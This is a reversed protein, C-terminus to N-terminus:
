CVCWVYAPLPCNRVKNFLLHDDACADAFRILSPCHCAWVCHIHAGLFIHKDNSTIVNLATIKYTALPQASERVTQSRAEYLWINPWTLCRFLVLCNTCLGKAADATCRESIGEGARLLGDATLGSGQFCSAKVRLKLSCCRGKGGASM